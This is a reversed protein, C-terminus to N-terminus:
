GVYFTSGNTDEAIANQDVSIGAARVVPVLGMLTGDSCGVSAASSFVAAPSARARWRISHGSLAPATVFTGRNGRRELMGRDILIQLAKRLTMRSIGLHEALDREAPIRETPGFEPREANPPM